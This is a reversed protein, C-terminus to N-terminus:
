FPSRLLHFHLFYHCGSPLRSFLKLYYSNCAFLTIYGFTIIMELYDDFQEYEEKEMEEMEKEEIYAASNKDTKDDGDDKSKNLKVKKKLKKELKKRNQM